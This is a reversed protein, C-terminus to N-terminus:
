LDGEVVVDSGVLRTRVRNLKLAQKLRAPSKGGIVGKANRGGLLSPAMYLRVQQVLKDKLMAANIEAGGELLLRTVGRRGLEQMLAPLYVRGQRAPLALVEAGRKQLARRRTTPGEGTTAVLTKAGHTQRLIHADLPTRLRSDVVVRLPQKRAPKALRVGVRATLSPDDALVTGVGVMVADVLSRLRHAERRSQESTIWKSEGSVTAIQGDLTMGAKLIVYPRKTRIWHSYARNLEEAERNAVGLTVSM